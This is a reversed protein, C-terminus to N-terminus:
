ALVADLNDRTWGARKWTRRVHCNRCVVECKAIEALIRDWSFGMQGAHGVNFEKDGLHDFELVIPDDEGCDACSHEAKYQWIKNKLERQRSKIQQFIKEKNTQYHEARLVKQCARCAWNRTGKEKSKWAFESLDKEEKCRGCIKMCVIKYAHSGFDFKIQVRHGAESDFRSIQYKM